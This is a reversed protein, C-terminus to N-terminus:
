ARLAARVQDPDTVTPIGPARFAALASGFRGAPRLPLGAAQWAAAAMRVWSHARADGKRGPRVEAACARDILDATAAATALLEAHHQQGQLRRHQLEVEQMRALLRAATPNMPGWLVPQLAAYMARAAKRLDTLAKPHLQPLDEHWALFQARAADLAAREASALKFPQAHRGM